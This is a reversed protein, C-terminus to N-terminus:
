EKIYLSLQLLICVLLHLMRYRDSHISFQFQYVAVVVQTEEKHSYWQQASCRFGLHDAQPQSDDPVLQSKSDSNLIHSCSIM